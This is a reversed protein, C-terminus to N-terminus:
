AKIQFEDPMRFVVYLAEPNITLLKVEALPSISFLGKYGDALILNGQKDFDIGLPRGDTTAWLESRLGNADMRVIGQSTAAYIRGEADFAIDEPGSYGHLLIKEIHGLHENSQYDGTYGKDVPAEWAIPDIAVPWLSLYLIWIFFLTMLIKLKM